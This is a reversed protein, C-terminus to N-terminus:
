KKPSDGQLSHQLCKTLEAFEVPKYFIYAIHRRVIDEEEASLTIGTFVLVPMSRSPEDLRIFELVELGSRERPLRLDIIAADVPWHSLIYFAQDADECLHAKYGQRELYRGLSGRVSPDDDLVLVTQAGPKPAPIM